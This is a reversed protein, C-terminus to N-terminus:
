IAVKNSPDGRIAVNEGSTIGSSTGSKKKMKKTAGTKRIKAPAYQEVADAGHSKLHRILNGRQSAKYECQPFKCAFRKEGTHTRMHLNLDSKFKSKYACSEGNTNQWGCVFPKEDSHTRM